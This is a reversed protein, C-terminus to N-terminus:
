KTGTCEGAQFFMCLSLLFFKQFGHFEYNLIGEDEDEADEAEMPDYEEQNNDNETEEEDKSDDKRKDERQLLLEYFNIWDSSFVLFTFVESGNM